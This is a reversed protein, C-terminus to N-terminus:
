DVLVAALQAALGNGDYLFVILDLGFRAYLNRALQYLAIMDIGDHAHAVRVHEHGLKRLDDFRAHHGNGGVRPGSGYRAFSALGVDKRRGPLAVPRSLRHAHIRLLLTVALDEQHRGVILGAFFHELAELAVELALHDFLQVGLQALGVVRGFDDLQLSRAGVGQEDEVRTAHANIEDLLHALGSHQALKRHQGHKRHVAGGQRRELAQGFAHDGAGHPARAVVAGLVVGEDFSEFLFVVARGAHVGGCGIIRAIQQVNRDALQVAVYGVLLRKRLRDFRGPVFELRHSARELEIVVVHGDLVVISELRYLALTAVDHQFFDVGRQFYVLVNIVLLSGHR